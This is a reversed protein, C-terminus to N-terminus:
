GGGGGRSRRTIRDEVTTLVNGALQTRGKGTTEVPVVEERKWHNKGKWVRGGKGGSRYKFIMASGSVSGSLKSKMGRKKRAVKKKLETPSVSRAPFFSGERRGGGWRRVVMKGGSYRGTLARKAETVCQV